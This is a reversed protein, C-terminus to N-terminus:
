LETNREPQQRKGMPERCCYGCRWRLAVLCSESCSVALCRVGAEVKRGENLPLRDADM